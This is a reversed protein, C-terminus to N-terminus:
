NITDGNMVASEPVEFTTSTGEIQYPGTAQVPYTSGSTSYPVIFEGNVSAQRYTFNRGQNTVLPIDIIGSGKIQAGKVYEFIKVYKLDATGSSAADSPSEYILRYHDLAPVDELPRNLSVGLVAAHYGAQANQNYQAAAADADTVNMSKADTVVPLAEHSVSPDVYEIYYATTAPTMSGDFNQLKSVMTQYYPAENFFGSEYMGQTTQSPIFLDEQYPAGAATANYWTAMAWFKGTDMEIDTIVYRTGDHNLIANATDESTSMFYAASGDPGTVGQQFPNANPIRHAINTIMHGYDWWSMVGYATSPYQFTQQNYITYYDVGTDPTNNGLWQLAAEWDPNMQNVGATSVQYNYSLSTFAFLLGLAFVVTVASLVLYDRSRAHEAIKKKKAKKSRRPSSEDDEPQEASPSILDRGLGQIEKWGKGFVFHICVASLLAIVVALYYEYRVHQWTAFLIILAWVLAFIEQPREERINNYLTVAIGGAMLLLGYSFATWAEAPTWARADMVTQSVAPQGFFNYLDSVFLTYLEPAAVFLLLIFGIGCGIIALPYWYKERNKLYRALLYLLVTGGILSVYAYVHGISYTSLDTGPSKFGFLLLGVAAIAFIISNAILLYTSERGRSFDFIFQVLTFVGVIFAFLIMTPMLFLGLLYAIGALASLIATKKWTSFDALNIKTEKESLLVSLYALCFLTSFLVEGDRHNFYGYLSYLFFTGSVVATFGSALLGTKWDGFAKGVFYMLVVTAAAFFPTVLLCTGIIQPVTVAGTLTCAIDAIIITLPGWYLSTGVPFNTMPDFWPYQFHNALSLEVLRLDYQPDDSAVMSLIDGHNGTLMPILRVWLAVLIFFAVLGIVLLRRRDTFYSLNM